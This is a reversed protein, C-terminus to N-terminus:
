NAGKRATVTVLAVESGILSEAGQQTIEEALQAMGKEYVADQLLRLLGPRQQAITQVTERRLPQYYTSEKEEVTFGIKRLQNFIRYVSWYANQVYPWTDPFYTFLWHAPMSVFSLDIWHWIGHPALREYIRQALSERDPHEQVLLPTYLFALTDDPGDLAASLTAQTLSVTPWKRSDLRLPPVGRQPVDLVLGGELGAQRRTKLASSLAPTIRTRASPQWPWVPLFPLAAAEDPLATIPPCIAYPLPLAEAIDPSWSPVFSGLDRERLLPIARFLPIFPATPFLLVLRSQVVDVTVRRLMLLLLDHQDQETADDWVEHL